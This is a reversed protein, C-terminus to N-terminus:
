GEGGEEEEEFPQSGCSSCLLVQGHREIKGGCRPCGGAAIKELKEQNRTEDVGYKEM